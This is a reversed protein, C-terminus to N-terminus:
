KQNGYKKDKKVAQSYNRYLVASYFTWFVSSVFQVTFLNNSDSNWYLKSFVIGIFTVIGLILAALSLNRRTINTM